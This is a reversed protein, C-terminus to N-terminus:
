WIIKHNSNQAVASLRGFRLPAVQLLPQALRLREAPLEAFGLRLKSRRLGGQGLHWELSKSSPAGVM